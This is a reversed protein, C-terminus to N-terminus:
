AGTERESIRHIHVVSRMIEGNRLTVVDCGRADFTRGDDYTTVGIWEFAVGLEDGYARDISLSIERRPRGEDGGRHLPARLARRLGHTAAITAASRTGSSARRERAPRRKSRARRPIVPRVVVV